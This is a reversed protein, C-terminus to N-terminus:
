VSREDLEWWPREDMNEDAVLARASTAPRADDPDDAEHLRGPLTEM